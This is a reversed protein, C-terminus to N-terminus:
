SSTPAPGSSEGDSDPPCIPVIDDQLRPGVLDGSVLVHPESEHGVLDGSAFAHPELVHHGQIDEAMVPKPKLEVPM